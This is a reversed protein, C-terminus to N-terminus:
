EVTVPLGREQALASVRDLARSLDDRGEPPTRLLHASRAIRVSEVHELRVGGLVQAEMYSDPLYGLLSTRLQQVAADPAADLVSRVGGYTWDLVVSPLQEISGLMRPDHGRRMLAFTDLPSLTTRPLVSRDLVLGIPGYHEIGINLKTPFSEDRALLPGGLKRDSVQLSGYVAAHDPNDSAVGLSPEWQLRLDLKPGPAPLDRITNLRGVPGFLLEVGEVAERNVM